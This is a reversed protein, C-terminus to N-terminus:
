HVVATVDGLESLARLWELGYAAQVKVVTGTDTQEISFAERDLGLAVLRERLIDLDFSEQKFDILCLYEDEIVM